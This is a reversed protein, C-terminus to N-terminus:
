YEEIKGTAPNFRKRAAAPAQGGQGEAYKENLRRIETLAALRTEVPLRDNALDGAMERYLQVDYNSQPGEMRPMKSTLQGAIAKLQATAQAGKTSMGVGAALVDRVAGATSGTAQGGSLITEAQTLLGLTDGASQARKGREAFAEGAVRGAASEEAQAGRVAPLDQPPLTKPTAAGVNITSTRPDVPAVYGGLDQFQAARKMALYQQQQAPTLANYYEWERVNSPSDVGSRARLKAAMVQAVTQGSPDLAALMQLDEDTIQSIAKERLERMKKERIRDERQQAMQEYQLAAQQYAQMGQGFAAGTPQGQAGAQMMQGGLALLGQSVMPDRVRGLLNDIMSAM